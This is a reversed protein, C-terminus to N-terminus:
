ARLTKSVALGVPGPDQAPGVAAGIAISSMLFAAAGAIMTRSIKSKLM